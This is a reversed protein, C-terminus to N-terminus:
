VATRRENCKLERTFFRPNHRTNVSVTLSVTLPLIVERGNSSNQDQYTVTMINGVTDTIKSVAWARAQTALAKGAAPRRFRSNGDNGFEMVLGSKTWVRFYEPDGAVGGYSVVKSFSEVETRYEAGIGAYAGTVAVLRQGDLCFRDNNDYDVPDVVGDQDLTAPCRTIQSLGTLSVGYGAPGDGGSSDYALALKPEMGGRGPPVAIPITYSAQGGPSVSFSGATTGVLEAQATTALLM